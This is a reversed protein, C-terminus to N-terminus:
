KQVSGDATSVGAQEVANRILGLEKVGKACSQLAAGQLLGLVLAHVVAVGVFAQVLRSRRVSELQAPWRLRWQAMRVSDCGVRRPRPHSHRFLLPVCDLSCGRYLLDPCWPSVRSHHLLFSTIPPPPPCSPPLVAKSSTSPDVRVVPGGFGRGGGNRGDAWGSNSGRGWGRRGAHVWEAGTRFRAEDWSDLPRVSMCGRRHYSRAATASSLEGCDANRWLLAQREVGMPTRSLRFAIHYHENRDASCEIRGGEM